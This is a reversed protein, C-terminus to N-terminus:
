RRRLGHQCTRESGIHPTGGKTGPTRTILTGIDIDAIAISM